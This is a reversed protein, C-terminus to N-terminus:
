RSRRRSRRFAVLALFVLATPEAGGGALSCGNSSSSAGANSASPTSGGGKSGIATSTGGTGGAGNAQPATGTSSDGRLPYGYGGGLPSECAKAVGADALIAPAGGTAPPVGTPAGTPAGATVGVATSVDTCKWASPCDGDTACTTVKLSCYGPFSSMTTCSSVTGGDIIAVTAGDVRVPQPAADVRVPESGGDIPASPAGTSAGGASAHGTGGTTSGGSGASGSGSCTISASPECTFGDGCDANVSCPLQWKFACLKTTTTTCTSTMTVVGADCKTNPACSRAGGGGSCSEETQSHCVMGAGCDTDASCTKPECTMITIQEASGDVALKACDANPPCAPTPPTLVGSTVCSYSQPCDKDSTCTQASAPAALGIATFLVAAGLIAKTLSM